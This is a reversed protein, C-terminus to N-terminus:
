GYRVRGLWVMVMGYWVTGRSCSPVPEALWGIWVQRSLIHLLAYWSSAMVLYYHARQCVREVCVSEVCVRQCVKEICVSVCGRLVCVRLVCGRLVCM